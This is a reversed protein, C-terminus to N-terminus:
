VKERAKKKKKKVGLKQYLFMRLPFALFDAKLDPQLSLLGVLM